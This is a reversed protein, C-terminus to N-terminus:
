TQPVLTRLEVNSVPTGDDVRQPSPRRSLVIGRDCLGRDRWPILVTTWLYPQQRSASVGGPTDAPVKVAISMHEEMPRRRLSVDEAHIGRHVPECEHRRTPEFVSAFVSLSRSVLARVSPRVISATQGSFRCADEGRSRRRRSDQSGFSIASLDLSHRRIGGSVPGERTRDAPPLHRSWAPFTKAKASFNDQFIGSPM